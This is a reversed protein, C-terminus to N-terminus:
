GNFTHESSRFFHSLTCPIEHIGLVIGVLGEHTQSSMLKVFIDYYADCSCYDQPDNPFLTLAIVPEM